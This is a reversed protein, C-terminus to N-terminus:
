GIPKTLSLIGINCINPGSPSQGAVVFGIGGSYYPTGCPQFDTFDYNLMQTGNVFATLTQGTMTVEAQFKQFGPFPQTVAVAQQTGGNCIQGLSFTTTAQGVAMGFYYSQPYPGVANQVRVLVYVSVAEIPGVDDAPLAFEVKLDLDNFVRGLYSLAMVESPTKSQVQAAVGVLSSVYQIEATGDGTVFWGPLSSVAVDPDYEQWTEEYLVPQSENGDSLAVLTLDIDDTDLHRHIEIIEMPFNSLGMDVSTVWHRDGLVSAAFEQGGTLQLIGRRNAARDLYTQAFFQASALDKAVVNSGDFQYARTVQNQTVSQLDTATYASANSLSGWPVSVQNNFSETDWDFETWTRVIKDTIPFRLGAGKGPYPQFARAVIRNNYVFVSISALSAIAQVAALATTNSTDDFSYLVTAGAAQAPGGADLFSAQDVYQELGAGKLIDLMASGPDEAQANSAVVIADTLTGLPDDAVITVTQDDTSAQIDHVLGNFVLIGNAFIQLGQNYWNRGQIMSSPHQPSLFHSTNDVTLNLESSVFQADSLLVDKIQEIQDWQAVNATIEQGMFFAQHPPVTASPGSPDVTPFATRAINSFRLQSISGALPSGGTIGPGFLLPGSGSWAGPNTSAMVTVNNLYARLLNGDWTVALNYCTNLQLGLGTNSLSTVGNADFRLQDGSNVVGMLIGNPGGNQFIVLPSASGWSTFTAWLEVTWSTTAAMSVQVAGSSLYNTGDLPGINQGGNCGAAYGPSGLVTWADSGYLPATTGNFPYYDITNTAAPM